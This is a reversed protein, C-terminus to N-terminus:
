AGFDSPRDIDAILGPRAPHWGLQQRTLASSAPNDLAAFHAFWGFHDAADEPDGIRQFGHSGHRVCADVGGRAPDPPPTSCAAAQQPRGAVGPISAQAL